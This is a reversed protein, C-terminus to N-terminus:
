KTYLLRMCEHLWENMQQHYKVVGWTVTLQTDVSGLGHVQTHNNLENFVIGWRALYSSDSQM